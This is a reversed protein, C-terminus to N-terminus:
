FAVAGKDQCPRNLSPRINFPLLQWLPLFSSFSLTMCAICTTIDEQYTTLETAKSSCPEDSDCVHVGFFFFFDPFFVPIFKHGTSM